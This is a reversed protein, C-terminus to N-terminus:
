GPQELVEDNAAVTLRMREDRDRRGAYLIYFPNILLRGPRTWGKPRSVVAWDDGFAAITWGRGIYDALRLRLAASPHNAWTLETPHPEM